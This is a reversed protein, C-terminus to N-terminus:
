GCWGPGAEGSRHAIGMAIMAEGVDRSGVEVSRVERGSADRSAPGVSVKGSNLLNVLRVAADIGRTREAECQADQISPAEIGAIRM